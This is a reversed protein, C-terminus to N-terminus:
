FTVPPLKTEEGPKITVAVSKQRGDETKFSLTHSGAPLKVKILPTEGLRKGKLYVNAFPVANVTVFGAEKAPLARPSEHTRATEQVRPETGKSQGAQGGPTAAGAAPVKNVPPIAQASPTAPQTPQVTAGSSTLQGAPAGSAPQTGTGAGASSALSSTGTDSAASGTSPAGSEGSTSGSGVQTSSGSTGRGDHVVQETEKWPQLVALVLLAVVGLGGGLILPLKSSTPPPEAPRAAVKDEGLTLVLKPSSAPLASTSGASLSGASVSGATPTVGMAGARAGGAPTLLPRERSDTSPSSSSLRERLADMEEPALRRTSAVAARSQRVPVSPLAGEARPTSTPGAEETSSTGALMGPEYRVTRGGEAEEDEPLLKAAQPNHGGISVDGGSPLIDAASPLDLAMQVSAHAIQSADTPALVKTPAQLPNFGGKMPIFDSGSGWFDPAKKPGAPGQSGGAPAPPTGGMPQQPQLLAHQASATGAQAGAQPSSAEAAVMEHAGPAIPNMTLGSGQSVGKPDLSIAWTDKEKRAKAQVSEQVLEALDFFSAPVTAQVALLERKLEGAHSHRVNKDPSLLRTMTQVLMTPLHSLLKIREQVNGEQVMALGPYGYANPYLPELTLMEFLIAGLSYLDSRADIVSGCAQEPSMYAVTGKIISQDVTHRLATTARAVGFDTIKVQGHEGLLVNDPKMDRHIMKLPTGRVDTANHAYSLAECLQKAVDLAVSLPLPEGKDRRHRLLQHLTQGQVYEMALYYQGGEKGLELTQVINPHNLSGGLRAESIFSDIFEDQTTLEPLIRKLAVLRQFGEPGTMEALYVQAMGGAGLQRRLIYKGFRSEQGPTM